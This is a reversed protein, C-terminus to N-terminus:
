GGLYAVTFASDHASLPSVTVLQRNQRNYMVTQSFPFDSIAGANTSASTNASANTFTINGFNALTSVRNNVTPREVIWEASLRSSGYLFNQKFSQGRTDDRIRISWENTASDVLTISASISDGASVNIADITVSYEPLLEYWVSYVTQGSIADHETGVQILTGESEGGIGIWAASFADNASVHVIPVIWSGNVGTIVPQPNVLDSAVVYGAWDLSVVTQSAPNTLFQSVFTLALFASVVLM